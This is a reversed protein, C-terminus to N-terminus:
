GSIQRLHASDRAIARVLGSGNRLQAIKVYAATRMPSWVAGLRTLNAPTIQHTPGNGSMRVLAAKMRMCRTNTANWATPHSMLSIIKAAAVKM